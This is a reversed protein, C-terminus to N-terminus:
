AEWAENRCMKQPQQFVGREKIAAAFVVIM